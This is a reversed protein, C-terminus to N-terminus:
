SVRLKGIVNRGYNKIRGGCMTAFIMNPFINRKRAQKIAHPTIFVQKELKNLIDIYRSVKITKRKM